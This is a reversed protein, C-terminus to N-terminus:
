EAIFFSLIMKDEREGYQPAYASYLWIWIIHKPSWYWLFSRSRTNKEPNKVDPSINWRHGM